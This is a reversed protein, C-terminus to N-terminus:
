KAHGSLRVRNLPHTDRVNDFLGTVGPKWMNKTVYFYIPVVPLEDMLIAEADRLMKMRKAPDLERSAAHVLRDYEANSFGTNNNGNTTTFLDIFTNPDNYDGIWGRRLVDFELRSQMDLYVKWETNKLEIDISLHARWMEQIAAAIKKHGEQTNYLIEIKPFGKGGPFGAEALLKRAAEPNFAPMEAPTYGPLGPPVIARAPIEGARTIHRVIQEKDIALSLAKRVRKDKTPGRTLNFGYFYTTLFPGSHFDPRKKLEEIYELPVTDMWHIAGKEYLNFATTLNEIPLFKLQQDPVNAADWYHPNKEVRIYEKTKWEKLQYPGNGVLTGPKTWDKGHKEVTARHVPFYTFFGTLDLFYPTPSELTVVLTKEDEARVGVQEIAIDSRKAAEDLAKRLGAQIKPDKETELHRRLPEVHRAQVLEPLRVADKARDEPSLGSWGALTADASRGNYCAKANKVYNSIQEVYESGLAPDLVRKWSWEFDQATVPDGNSWKAPRLHFTYCLGDPSVDWREAVGPKVSLDKADYTTLGEFLTITIHYEVQGKELGPDLTQPEAGNNVVFAAPGDSKGCGPLFPLATAVLLALVRPM